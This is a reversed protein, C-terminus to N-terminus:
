KLAKDNIKQTLISQIAKRKKFALYVISTKSEEKFGLKPQTM